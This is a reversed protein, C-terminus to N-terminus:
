VRVLRASQIAKARRLEDLVVEPIPATEDVIVVGIAHGGNRGLAFNAINV